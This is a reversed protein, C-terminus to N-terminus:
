LDVFQHTLSGAIKSSFCGSSCWHDVSDPFVDLKTGTTLMTRSFMPSLVLPRFVDLRSGTTLMKKSFMWSLALPWCQRPFCGASRWHDVSGKEWNAYNGFNAIVKWQVSCTEALFLASQKQTSHNRGASLWTLERRKFATEFAQASFNFSSIIFGWCGYWSLTPQWTSRWLRLQRRGFKDKCSM